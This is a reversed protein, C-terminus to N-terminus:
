VIQMFLSLHVNFSESNLTCLQTKSVPCGARDFTEYSHPSKLGIFSVPKFMETNQQLNPM